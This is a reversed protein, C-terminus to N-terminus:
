AGFEPERHVGRVPPNSKPGARGIVISRARSVPGHTSGPNLGDRDLVVDGLIGCPRLAREPDRPQMESHMCLGQRM